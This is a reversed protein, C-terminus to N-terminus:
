ACRICEPLLLVPQPRGYRQRVAGARATDVHSAPGARRGLRALQTCPRRLQQGASRRGSDAPPLAVSLRRTRAAADPAGSVPGCRAGAAPEAAAVPLVSRGARLAGSGRRYGFTPGPDAAAGASLAVQHSGSRGSVRGPQSHHSTPSFSITLIHSPSLRTGVSVAPSIVVNFTEWRGACVTNIVRSSRGLYKSLFFIM